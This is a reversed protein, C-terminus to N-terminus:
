RTCADFPADTYAGQCLVDRSIWGANLVIELNWYQIAVPNLLVASLTPGDPVALQRPKGASTTVQDLHPNACLAIAAEGALKGVLPLNEWVDVVQTRLAVRNLGASDGGRSAILVRPDNVASDPAVNIHLKELARYV